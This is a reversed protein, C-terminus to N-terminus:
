SDVTWQGSKFSPEEFFEATYETIAAKLGEEVPASLEKTDRIAKLLKHHYTELKTFFGKEYDKVDEVAVDKLYDNTVAYIICM